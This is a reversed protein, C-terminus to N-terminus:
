LGTPLLLLPAQTFAAPRLGVNNEGRAEGSSPKHRGAVEYSIIHGKQGHQSPGPPLMALGLAPLSYTGKEAPGKQSLCLEARLVM